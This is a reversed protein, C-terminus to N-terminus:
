GIGDGSAGLTIIKGFLVGHDSFFAKKPQLNIYDIPKILQNFLIDMVRQEGDLEAIVFAHHLNQPMRAIECVLVCCDIGAQQLTVYKVVSIDKCDGYGCALTHDCTNWHHTPDTRYEIKENVCINFISISQLSQKVPAQREACDRVQLWQQWEPDDSPIPLEKYNEFIRRM